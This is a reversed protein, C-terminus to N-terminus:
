RSAKVTRDPVAGVLEVMMEGPEIIVVIPAPTEHHRLRSGRPGRRHPPLAQCWEEGPPGHRVHRGRHATCLMLREGSRGSGELAALEYLGRPWTWTDCEAVSLRETVTAADTASHSARTAPTTTPQGRPDAATM